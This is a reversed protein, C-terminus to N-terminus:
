RDWMGEADFGAQSGAEPPPGYIKEKLSKFTEGLKQVFSKKIAVPEPPKPADTRPWARQWAEETMPIKDWNKRVSANIEKQSRLSKFAGSRQLGHNNSDIRM